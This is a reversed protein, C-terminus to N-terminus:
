AVAEVPVVTYDGGNLEAIFVLECKRAPGGAEFIDRTALYVFDPYDSWPTGGIRDKEGFPSPVGSCGLSM